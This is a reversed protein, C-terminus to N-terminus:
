PRRRRVVLTALGGSALALVGLIASERLAWIWYHDGPIGIAVVKGTADDRYRKALDHAELVPAASM